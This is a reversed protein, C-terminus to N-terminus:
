SSRRSKLANVYLRKLLNENSEGKERKVPVSSTADVGELSVTGANENITKRADQMGLKYARDLAEEYDYAKWIYERTNKVKGQLLDATITDVAESRYNPYKNKLSEDQQKMLLLNQQQLLLRNQDKITKIEAKEADSLNSFDNDSNSQYGSQGLVSQAASVFSADQLLAQIKETTWSSTDSVNNVKAELTKKLEALDQFKKNFGKEFSKYSQEAFKRAEEVSTINDFSKPDFTIDDPQKSVDTKEPKFNAVRTAISEKSQSDITQNDQTVKNEEIKVENM